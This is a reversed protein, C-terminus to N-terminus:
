ISVVCKYKINADMCIYMYLFISIVRIKRVFIQQFNRQSPTKDTVAQYINCLNIFEESFELQM